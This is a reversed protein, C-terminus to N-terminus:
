RSPGSTPQCIFLMLDEMILEPSRSGVRTSKFMVDVEHIREMIRILRDMSFRQADRLLLYLVYDNMSLLKFKGQKAMEPHEERVQKVMPTFEKYTMGPRWSSRFLTFLLERAVMLRRFENAIAALTQLPHSVIQLNEHLATLCQALNGSRVVKNLEFFAVEHFDMFVSEVDRVTIEGRTGVYGILKALESNLQRLDKGCRAYMKDLADPRIKKGAEKLAQGVREEFFPRDLAVGLRDQRAACHVVKGHSELAKFLKKRKDVDVATFVLVTEEPLSSAILEELQDDDGRMGTHQGTELYQRAVAALTDREDQGASEGLIETTWDLGLELDGSELGSVQMLQSFARSAGKRDGRKWTEVVRGAIKRQDTRAAFITTQEVVVVRPGGFLSPTAVLATLAGVDLANGDVVILNTKRLDEDLRQAIVNHVQEKVLFEDGHFLYLCVDQEKAPSVTTAKAKRAM